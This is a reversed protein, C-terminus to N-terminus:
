KLTVKAGSEELKAKLAEAEAKCEDKVAQAVVKCDLVKASM